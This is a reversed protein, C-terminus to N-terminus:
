RVNEELKRRASPLSPPSPADAVRMPCDPSDTGILCTAEVAGPGGDECRGNNVLSVHVGAVVTHCTAAQDVVTQGPPLPPALPSPPLNPSPPPNPSPMVRPPQLVVAGTVLLTGAVLMGVAGAGAFVMAPYRALRLYRWVTDRISGTPEDAFYDDADTGVSASAYTLWGRGIAMPAAPQASKSASARVKETPVSLRLSFEPSAM